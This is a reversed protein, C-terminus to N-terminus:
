KEKYGAMEHAKAKDMYLYVKPRIDDPRLYAEFENQSYVLGAADFTGNFVVAILAKGDPIDEFKKPAWCRYAGHDVILTRAKDNYNKVSKPNLYYGM